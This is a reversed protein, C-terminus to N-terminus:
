TFQKNNNSSTELLFNLVALKSISISHVLWEKVREASALKDVDIKEKCYWYLILQKTTLIYSNIVCFAIWCSFNFEGLSNLVFTHFWKSSNSFAYNTSNPASLTLECLQLPKRIDAALKEQFEVHCVWTHQIVDVQNMFACQRGRSLKIFVEM